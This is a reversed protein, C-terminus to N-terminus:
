WRLALWTSMRAREMSPLSSTAPLRKDPPGVPELALGAGSGSLRNTEPLGKPLHGASRRDAPRPPGVPQDAGQPPERCPRQRLPLRQRWPLLVEWKPLVKPRRCFALRSAFLSPFRWDLLTCPDTSAQSVRVMDFWLFPVVTRSFGSPVARRAPRTRGNMNPTRREPAGRISFAGASATDAYATDAYLTPSTQLSLGAKQKTPLQGSRATSDAQM